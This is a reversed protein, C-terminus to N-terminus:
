KTATLAELLAEYLKDPEVPKAIFGNMGAQMCNLKDEDFANATMALIPLSDLRTIKRIARTAELGDMDPMQMDMLVAAFDNQTAMQVAQVGNEALDPDLGVERLLLLAVEQNILDDEALLVRKSKHERLLIADAAEQRPPSQAPTFSEGKALHATLWFSSGEGLRSEVGVEGGMLEAIRRTIALGLGTGGFKRTTSNDAQEFAQFLRTSQEASMGIGSDKVEFRLLYGADSEELLGCSLTIRGQDTFKIANSVYNILAQSLRTPDGRLMQPMGAAKISMQLGKRTLSDGVVAYVAHLVDSLAFNRQELVLKGAEIKSLDLIDNIVGLLHKGSADIKDLQEAQLPTVGTRRMIGAMGLIGNMPTRIEHSMNALFTSKALSAREAAEKAITLELEARRRMVIRWLDEGILQLQHIDSDDYDSAKNGVGFLVRTKGNEIIPVGLHRVLHVHGEPYGKREPLHQYDNHLAPAHLRVSDAWIGAQSVPYHKDHVVTCHKLTETSWTYLELTEEDEDVLHLYGIESDTLRVAEEIGMQLLDRESLKPAQQSMDFMAKLRLDSVLLHKNTAELESTRAAVLGELNRRHQELEALLRKYESIDSWISVAHRRGHLEIIRLSVQVDIFRGDKHRHKTEFRLEQGTQTDAVLTRIQEEPHEAQIDFVNLQAYEERTYGLLSHAATNFEIFCFSELDTLEIADGAQTVIASYVAERERLVSDSRKLRYQFLGLLLLASLTLASSILASKRWSRFQEEVARGVLVFFPFNKVTQFAFIRDVGDTKGIYRVVGQKEGANIRLYPPSQLAKNNFKEAVIPWRVVLRSDDSRRISVMGQEGVQLQSFKSSFHDLDIPTAVLGLFANSSDTIAQYAILSPRGKTKSLLTESFHLARDPSAKIRQFFDRDSINLASIKADGRFIVKGDADFIRHALIEPFNKALAHLTQSTQEVNAPSTNGVVVSPALKEAIYASNSTIRRLTSDVQNALVKAENMSATEVAEETQRYTLNLFYGLLVCSLIALALFHGFFPAGGGEVNVTHESPASRAQHQGM